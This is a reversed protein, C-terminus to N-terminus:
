IKWQKKMTGKEGDDQAGREHSGCRPAMLQSPISADLPRHGWSIVRSAPGEEAEWTHACVHVCLYVCKKKLDQAM